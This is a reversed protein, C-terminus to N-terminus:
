TTHQDRLSKARSFLAKIAEGDGAAVQERTRTLETEFRELVKILAARNALCIDHWMTPDSSAIRTFDRFGGAAFRFIEDHQDMRGLTDVLTYALLHPLHSTAALVEDHYDPDLRTVEAGTALWMQEIQRTAEPNTESVPTLIVRHNEFLEASSADVGSKEKGAIPHGPVLQAPVEGFVARADEVICRKASGVDTIIADPALGDRMSEFIRRVAGLPSAIVVVDAGDVAGAVETDFRDIVGLGRARELNATRRSCGVVEGVAGAKRLALALSGGILGVGIICLREIM